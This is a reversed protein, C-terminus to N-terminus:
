QRMLSLRVARRQRLMYALDPPKFREIRSWLGVYPANPIQAQMGVLHEIMEAASLPARALLYQRALLARNLAVLPMAEPPQLVPAQGRHRSSVSESIGHDPGIMDAAPPACM